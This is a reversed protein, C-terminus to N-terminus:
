RRIPVAPAVDRQHRAARVTQLVRKYREAVVATSFRNVLAARARAGMARTEEREDRLRRVAVAIGEADGPDAQIGCREEAVVRAVESAPATLALVARGSALISYFKSPVCLGEMGPELTVVSADAVSLLRPYDDKPVFPMLKVNSLKEASVRRAIHERQAGDGVLLLVVSPDGRLVRAADLLADFNHYRGFNGSYCVVFDGRGLGILDRYAPDDPADRIADPDAGVAIVESRGPMLGYRAGLYEEMCRGLVVVRAAGHLWARQAAHLTRAAISDGKLVGLIVARDPDLDYVVYVYPVGTMYRFFHVCFALTPPATGALVVDFPQKRHETILRGLAALGFWLNVALRFVTNKGRASPTRLRKIRIGEWEEDAAYDATGSRYGNRSTIVTIEMDGSRCLTSALQTLVAGTGGAEDPYFFENVVCLRLPECPSIAGHARNM